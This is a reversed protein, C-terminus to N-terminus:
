EAVARRVRRRRWAIGLAVAVLAALLPMLGINIFKVLLQLNEIDRNLERQVGRLERRTELLDNRFADMAAQQEASLLANSQEQAKTQLDALQKQTDELKKELQRQRALFQQEAQRRMSDIREFPRLSKGRSRLGILDGSGSMNDIANILFDANAAIPVYMTQGFMQQQRVWFRDDLLDADAFLLVNIPGTSEKVQEAPAAAPKAESDKAEGDKAEGEKAEAKPPGDPFATKAPGSIRAALTYTEGTPKFKEALGQPDPNGKLDATDMLMAQDSSTILPTLTTTAGDLQRISGISAVNIQTLEATVVDDASMRANPIALWPIYDVVAAPGSQGTQVRQAMALDAVFKDPAVEVGWARFLDNLLSSQEGGPMPQGTMPNPMAAATESYPDAFAILRGGKLVYQDIAYQAQPSLDKPHALILVSLSDNIEEPKSADLMKVDFFQKIQELILYPDSQGRMAAMIGGPGYELPLAGLIGITPKKPNSLAYVLKTLDYELFQEKDAQFFPIVQQQDLTNTAVLGFYFQGGPLNAAQLGAGVARDEAETFPEPDIVELRIKGDSMAAYRELLERVRNGYQMMQPAASGVKESFFFRMTIPEPVAKIVNRTGESLTYLKAETLDIRADRLGQNVVINVAFFVAFAAILGTGTLFAKTGTKM